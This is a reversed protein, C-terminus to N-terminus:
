QCNLIADITEVDALLQEDGLRPGVIQLAVPAGAFVKPDDAENLQHNILLYLSECSAQVSADEESMAVFDDDKLDKEPDVKTFPIIVAPYQFIDIDDSAALYSAESVDVANWAVTYADWIWDGPLAAAFPGAPALIVDIEAEQWKDLMAKQMAGKKANWAWADEFTKPPIEWFKIKEVSPVVPEGAKQLQERAYSLGDLTFLQKTINRIEMFDPPVFDKVIFGASELKARAAQIARRVPPQPTLGSQTILGIVPRRTSVGQEFIFPIVAPDGLWPKQDRTARSLLTLDRASHAIPGLVAPVGTNM